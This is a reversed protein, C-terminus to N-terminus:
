ALGSGCEVWFVHPARQRLSTDGISPAVSARRGKPVREIESVIMTVIKMAKM